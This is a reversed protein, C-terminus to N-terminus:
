KLAAFLCQLVDGRGWTTVESLSPWVTWCLMAIALLVLTWLKGCMTFFPQVSWTEKEVVLSFMSPMALAASMRLELNSSSCISSRAVHGLFDRHMGVSGLGPIRCGGDVLSRM